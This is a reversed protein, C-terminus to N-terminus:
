DIDKLMSENSSAPLAVVLWWDWCVRILWLLGLVCRKATLAHVIAASTVAPPDARAMIRAKETASFFCHGYLKQM